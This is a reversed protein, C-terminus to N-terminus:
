HSSQSAGQWTEWSCSQALTHFHRARSTLRSTAFTPPSVKCSMGRDLEERTDLPSPETSTAQEEVDRCCKVRYGQTRRSKEFNRLM